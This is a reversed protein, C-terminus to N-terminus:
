ALAKFKPHRHPLPAHPSSPRLIWASRFALIVIPSEEPKQDASRSVQPSGGLNQLPPMNGSPCLGDGFYSFRHDWMCHTFAPLLNPLYYGHHCLPPFHVTHTGLPPTRMPLLSMQEQSALAHFVSTTSCLVSLATAPEAGQGVCGTATGRGGLLDPVEERFVGFSCARTLIPASLAASPFYYSTQTRSSSIGM